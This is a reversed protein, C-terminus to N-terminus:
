PTREKLPLEVLRDREVDLLRAGWGDVRLVRWGAAREGPRVAHLKRQDDELFARAGDGDLEVAVLRWSSLGPAQDTPTPPPESVSAEGNNSRPLFAADDIEIPPEHSGTAATATSDDLPPMRLEGVDVRLRMSHVALGATLLLLGAALPPTSLRGLDFRSM